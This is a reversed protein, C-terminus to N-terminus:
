MTQPILALTLIKQKTLINKSSGKLSKLRLIRFPFNYFSCFLIKYQGKGELSTWYDEGARKKLPVQCLSWCSLTKKFTGHMRLFARVTEEMHKWRRWLILKLMSQSRLNLRRAGVILAFTEKPQQSRNVSIRLGFM